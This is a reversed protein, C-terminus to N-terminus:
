GGVLPVLRLFLLTSQPSITVQQDLTEIQENDVFVYYLGDSFAEIAVAVAQDPDSEQDLDSGGSIIRGRTSGVEIQEPTLVQLLRREDQRRRFVELEERIIIELLERLVLNRPEPWGIETAPFLTRRQGAVKAEIRM